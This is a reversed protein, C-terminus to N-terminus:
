DTPGAIIRPARGAMELSEPPAIDPRINLYSAAREAINKFVPASIKGGYYGHKPEDLVVSICIEPEDAPFFGIFSSFYQGELYGNPGGSKQATGTKGAVTFYDLRATSGTGNTSVVTKLAEVMQRATTEQVVERVIQPQYKAVVKGHEDELRDFLMPRMLRGNNAIASMAMVMQLPTAAVEHGMPIRSISLKTWQHLPHVIGPEEGPLPILTRLGFGFSHMYQLLREPGLKIGIKAAGINSSKTIINEVSLVGYREHDRLVKGGFVFRGQECDFQDELSVLREQLAAAVVVIKFTSGPEAIEQVVRNRLFEPKAIGPNNPDFNPLTAMALIEGTKPRVAICSASRPTHKAMAEALESEVIHQLVADITLVVNFGAHAEVDQQRFAVLERGGRDRETQRWGRVGKLKPEMVLEVGDLGQGDSSVYGLVHAALNQNPYIRLQDERADAFIANNRLSGLAALAAAKEAKNLRNTDIGFSSRGLAARIQDWEEVKVKRKLVVYKDYVPNGTENTRIVRPQLREILYAENTNLLPALMGAMEPVRNGILVPNACVTKVFVSTALPNDRCDRIEGRRPEWSFAVQTQKKADNSLAAHRLLQLDVLRYGLAAFAMGVLVTLGFLRRYQRLKAM